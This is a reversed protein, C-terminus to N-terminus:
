YHRAFWYSSAQKTSGDRQDKGDRESVSSCATTCGQSERGCDIEDHFAGGGQKATRHWEGEDQATITWKDPDIGFAKFDGLLCGM